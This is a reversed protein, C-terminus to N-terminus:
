AATQHKSVDANVTKKSRTSPKRTSTPKTTEVPTLHSVFESQANLTKEAANEWAQFVNKMANNWDLMPNMQQMPNWQMMPSFSTQQEFEKAISFWSELLEEQSKFGTNVMEQVSDFYRDIIDSESLEPNAYRMADHTFKAQTQIMDTLAEQTLELPQKCASEWESKAKSTKSQLCNDWFQRQLNTWAGLLEEMQNNTNM